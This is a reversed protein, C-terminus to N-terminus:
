PPDIELIRVSTEINARHNVRTMSAWRGQTLGSPSNTCRMSL